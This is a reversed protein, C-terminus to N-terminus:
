ILQRVFGRLGLGLDGQAYPFQFRFGVPSIVQAERQIGDAGGEGSKAPTRRVNVKSAM